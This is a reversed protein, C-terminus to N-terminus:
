QAPRPRALSRQARDCLTNLGAKMRPACRREVGVHVAYSLALMLALMGALSLHPGLAAYTKNFMMYGAHQHLLYLPYTLSGAMMWQRRGLAGTRRVAVLGMTAYFMTVIGAVVFPSAATHYTARFAPVDRVAQLVALGWSAVILAARAPSVGKSWILYFTAGAVFYAAYDVILFSRMRSVGLLEMAACVLLWVAMFWPAQDVRRIALVLAVMAYFRIEVFLSWYVGDMPRVGVFDSMLTLNTLYQGVTAHFHPAGIALTLLFTFTCSAWFAPYLRVARSIAFRRLSGSAATMLIVFGSIMFFLQVGLHGYKGVPALWPYHMVTAGDGAACGRFTYHFLVVALAALFRLLDIENVRTSKM